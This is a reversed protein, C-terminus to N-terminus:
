SQVREKEHRRASRAAFRMGSGRLARPPQDIAMNVVAAEIEPAVRNVLIPKRRSMEVLALDGGKDYLEKPSM